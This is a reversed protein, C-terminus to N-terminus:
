FDLEAARVPTVIDTKRIGLVWRALLPGAQGYLAAIVCGAGNDPLRGGPLGLKVEISDFGWTEARWRLGPRRDYGGPGENHLARGAARFTAIWRHSLPAVLPVPAGRGAPARRRVYAGNHSDGGGADTDQRLM